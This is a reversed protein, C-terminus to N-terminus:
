TRVLFIITHMTLILMFFNFCHHSYTAITYSSINNPSSLLCDLTSPMHIYLMVCKYLYLLQLLGLLGNMRIAYKPINRKAIAAYSYMLIKLDRTKM